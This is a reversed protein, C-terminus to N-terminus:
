EQGEVQFGDQHSMYIDRKSEGNLFTYKSM